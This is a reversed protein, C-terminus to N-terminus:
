ISACVSIKAFSSHRACLLALREIYIHSLSLACLFCSFVNLLRLSFEQRYKKICVVFVSFFVLSYICKYDNLHQRFNLADYAIHHSSSSWIQDSNVCNEISKKRTTAYTVRIHMCKQTEHRKNFPNMKKQHKMEFLPVLLCAFMCEQKCAYLLAIINIM